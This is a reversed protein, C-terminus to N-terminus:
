TLIYENQANIAIKRDELLLQLVELVQTGEYPLIEILRRSSRKQDRLLAIIRNRVEQQDSWGRDTKGICVDCKGCNEERTEGFYRLLQQNRCTKINKVYSLMCEVNEKKVKQYAKVKKAFSNITFEDERPVLFTIELDSHKPQYDIIGDNHLQELVALIKSESSAAKKAILLTNIKTEFDFIGGYTRLIVQVVGTVAGNNELYNFIQNKTALFRIKTNQSFAQSLAIVSNQDLIKLGNYALRINLEYIECFEELKFQFNENSITGYPIQFYTNLKKYLLKLFPVDPLSNLFQRELQLEDNKNTLVVAEAAQGDRGARGSEQFYNELSDPLHYHIVLSVDPKDVGMGFANTAVMVRIKNTLWLQLKDEKENKKMGGHFYTATSNNKNLFISLEEASRRTRVYVIGSKKAANCLQKLQYLKDETRVVKYAINDRSFSDKFTVAEVLQLNEIIDKAVRTTATATLALIPVNPHLQRLIACNLYAPRFDNGWQSICHAEDIAVLNVNMGVIREQVFEQQLREPSLYLFKYNGYLCNDLLTSVEEFSLGGTLGLARIGKKKLSDLQDQILAILPSVVICIGENLLAPIQYCVSKGGGTPLLALADTGTTVANIIKEQSGKFATFGWYEKLVDGADKIM